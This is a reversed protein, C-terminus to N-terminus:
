GKEKLQSQYSKADRCADQYGLKCATQANKLANKLDGKKFFIRSRMYHAWGNEPKLEISQNLYALSQDYENRRMFLWGLNDYAPSYNPNLDLVKKFDGIANEFQGKRMFARARWFYAEFNQPEIEIAQSLEDIAKEFRNEKYHDYGKRVHKQGQRSPKSEPQRTKQFEDLITKAQRSVDDVLKSLMQLPQNLISREIRLSFYVGTVILASLVLAFVAIAPYDRKSREKSPMSLVSSTAYKPRRPSPASSQRGEPLSDGAALIQVRGSEGEISLDTGCQRCTTQTVPQVSDESPIDGATKCVPCVFKMAIEKSKAPKGFSSQV